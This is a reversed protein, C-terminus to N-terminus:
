YIILIGSLKGRIYKTFINWLQAMFKTKKISIHEIKSYCFKISFLFGTYNVIIKFNNQFNLFINIYIQNNKLFITYLIPHGHINSGM